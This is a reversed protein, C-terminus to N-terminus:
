ASVRLRDYQETLENLVSETRDKSGDNIAIIEYNPYNLKDLKEITNKITNEENYCPVLISVMPYIDITPLPKREKKYFFLLGGIIWILSM